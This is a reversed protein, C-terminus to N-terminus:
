RELIVIDRLTNLMSNKKKALAVDSGTFQQTSLPAAIRKLIKYGLNKALIVTDITMDLWEGEYMKENMPKLVLAIKGTPKLIGRINKLSVDMANLFSQYTKTFENDPYESMLNYYPPDFYVLDTNNAKEPFGKLIDNQIIPIDQRLPRIDFLMYRRLLKKCVDRVAGSGAMPDVIKSFILPNTQPPTTYYYIINEILEIPTQGPYKLQTDSLKGTNWVNYYQLDDPHLIESFKGNKELINQPTGHGLDLDEEIENFSYCQLYLDLIEINRKETEAERLDKTYNNVSKTSVSLIDSIRDVDTLGNKWLKMANQRKEKTCLQKGFSNNLRISELLIDLKNESNFYNVNIEKKQELKHALYRHYGDILVLDKTVLIPPLKDLSERYQNVTTNDAEIRPYIDKDFKIKEIDIFEPM